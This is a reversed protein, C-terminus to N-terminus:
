RGSRADVPSPVEGLEGVEVSGGHSRASSGTAIAVAADLDDATVLSYGGLRDDGAEHNGLVTTRVMPKRLDALSNGLGESWSRWAAGLESTPVHDGSLGYTLLFTPM